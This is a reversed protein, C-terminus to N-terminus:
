QGVQQTGAKRTPTGCKRCFADDVQLPISCSSCTLSAEQIPQEPPTPPVPVVQGSAAREAQRAASLAAAYDQADFRTQAAVLFREAQSVDRGASRGADIVSRALELTFKSQAFNQPFEKQLLEKTTVEEPGGPPISDLRLLDGQAAQRAKLALLREKAKSTLDFVVRYNHRNYALKAQRLLDAAEESRVGGRELTSQIAKTTTLANFADDPLEDFRKAARVRRHRMSKRLYKVEVFTIVIVAIILGVVGLIFPDLGDAM